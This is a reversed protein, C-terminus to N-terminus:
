ASQESKYTELVWYQDSATGDAKPYLRKTDLKMKMVYCAEHVAQGHEDTKCNNLSLHEECIGCRFIHSPTVPMPQGGRRVVNILQVPSRRGLRPVASCIHLKIVHLRDSSPPILKTLGRRITSAVGRFKDSAGHQSLIAYIQSIRVSRADFAKIEQPSMRIYVETLRAEQQQKSLSALEDVLTGLQAADLRNKLEMPPYGGAFLACLDTGM